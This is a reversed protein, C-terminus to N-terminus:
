GGGGENKMLSLREAKRTERRAHGTIDLALQQGATDAATTCLPGSM